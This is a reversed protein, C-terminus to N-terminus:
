WDCRSLEAYFRLSSPCSMVHAIGGVDCQIYKAPDSHALKDTNGNCPNGSNGGIGTADQAKPACNLIDDFWIQGPPCPMIFSNGHADCQIFKTEDKPYPFYYKNLKQADKCPNVDQEGNGVSDEDSNDDEAGDDGDDDNNDNSSICDQKAVSFREGSPCQTIVHDGDGDCTIFKNDDLPYPHVLHGESLACSTCPSQLPPSTGECLTDYFGQPLDGVKCEGLSGSVRCLILHLSLTDVTGGGYGAGSGFTWTHAAVCGGDSYLKGVPCQSIYMRQQDPCTIFKAPDSPHPHYKAGDPSCPNPITNWDTNEYVGCIGEFDDDWDIIGSNCLQWKGNVKCIVDTGTDKPPDNSIDGTFSSNRCSPDPKLRVFTIFLPRSDTVHVVFVSPSGAIATDQKDYFAPGPHSTSFSTFINLVGCDVEIIVTKNNGDNPVEITSGGGEGEPVIGEIHGDEGIPNSARCASKKIEYIIDDIQNFNTLVSVHTCDPDSSAYNLEVINISGIGVAFIRISNNKAAEATQKTFIFSSSRGDTVLIAVKTAEKRGGYKEPFVYRDAYQIGAGISTGGGRYSTKMIAYQLSSKIWHTNLRFELTASSQFKVLGVQVAEAGINLRDVVESLFRLVKAFNSSGVSGSEDIIFVVDIAKYDCSGETATEMQQVKTIYNSDSQGPQFHSTWFLAQSTLNGPAPDAGQLKLYLAAALGSYLPKVLDNWEVSPWTINFESLIINCEDRIAANRCNKTLKFKDEDVQWIGGYYGSRYTSSMTGDDSQAIALRRIFLRDDAFICSERIRDSVAQVVAPGSSKAQITEDHQGLCLSQLIVITLFRTLFHTTM